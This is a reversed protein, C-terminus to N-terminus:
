YLTKGFNIRPDILTYTLDSLLRLVLSLLTFIYLSAFVVPYDRTSAADYGLLGLGNLSFIIEILINSTFLMGIFMAPFGSIVLLMANRFVHGYFVKSETLGKARALLVYPKNLEELFSNKTLISLGAFGGLTTSFVPLAMHWFYDKIKGWFSLEAFYDSVIGTLPFISWFRGGAFLVLLLIAILFSPLASLLIIIFSSFQDFRSDKRKAQAMGLPISIAYILLSAWVGLSISVPLREWILQTIPKGSTYSTGFNFTLYNKVMLLFRQYAPKDYGYLKKLEAVVREDMGFYQQSNIGHTATVPTNGGMNSFDGQNGGRLNGAGQIQGGTQFDGYAGKAKLQALKYEVPGGPALQVVAFNVLMIGLLTPIMLLLRRFIYHRM